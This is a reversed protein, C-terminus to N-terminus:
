QVNLSTESLIKIIPSNDTVRIFINGSRVWAYQIIKRKKSDRAQKYLRNFYKTLRENIFIFNNRNDIQKDFIEITLKAKKASKLINLKTEVKNFKVMIKEPEGSKTSSNRMRYIEEIDNDELEVGINQSITKIIAKPNEDNTKTVGCVEICKRYRKQKLQEIDEKLLTNENKLRLNDDILDNILNKLEMLEKQLKNLDEGQSNQNKIILELKSNINKSVPTEDVKNKITQKYSSDIQQAGMSKRTKRKSKCSTCLWFKEEDTALERAVENAVGTCQICFLKKCEGDCILGINHRPNIKKNCQNCSVIHTNTSM